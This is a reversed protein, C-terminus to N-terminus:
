SSIEGTLFAKQGSRYVRQSASHELVPQKTFTCYCPYETEIILHTLTLKKIVGKFFMIEVTTWLTLESLHGFFRQHCKAICITNTKSTWHYECWLFCLEFSQCISGFSGVHGSVLLHSFFHLNPHVSWKTDWPAMQVQEGYWESASKKKNQKKQKKQSYFLFERLFSNNNESLAAIISKRAVQPCCFM